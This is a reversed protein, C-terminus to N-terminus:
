CLFFDGLELLTDLVEGGLTVFRAKIGSVLLQLLQIGGSELSFSSTDKV